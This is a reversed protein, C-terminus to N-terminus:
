GAHPQMAEQLGAPKDVAADRSDRHEQGLRQANRQGAPRDMNGQGDQKEDDVQGEDGHAVAVDALRERDSTCHADDPQGEAECDDMKGIDGGVLQQGGDEATEEKTGSHTQRHTATGDEVSSVDGREQDALAAVDKM